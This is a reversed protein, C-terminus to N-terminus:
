ARFGAFAFDPQVGFSRKPHTWALMEQYLRVGSCNRCVRRDGGGIRVIQEARTTVGFQRRWRGAQEVRHEAGLEAFISRTLQEVLDGGPRSARGAGLRRLAFVGRRLHISGTRTGDAGRM